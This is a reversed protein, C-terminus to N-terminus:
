WTSPKPLALRHVSIFPEGRGAAGLRRQGRSLDRSSSCGSARRRGRWCGAREQGDKFVWSLLCSKWSFCGPAVWAGLDCSPDGAGMMSSASLSTVSHESNYPPPQPFLLFSVALARTPSCRRSSPAVLPPAAPPTSTHSSPSPTSARSCVHQTGVRGDECERGGGGPGPVCSGTRFGHSAQSPASRLCTSGQEQGGRGWRSHPRGSETM